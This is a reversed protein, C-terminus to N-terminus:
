GATEVAAPDIKVRPRRALVALIMGLGGIAAWDWWTLATQIIPDWLYPWVYRQIFAQSGNLLDPVSEYLLAGLASPAFGSFNAWDMSALDDALLVLAIAILALGLLRFPYRIIAM